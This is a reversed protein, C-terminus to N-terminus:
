EAGGWEGSLLMVAILAYNSIDNLDDIVDVLHVGNDALYAESDFDPDGQKLLAARAVKKLRSMKDHQMRLIVGGVGQETINDPGRSRFKEEFIALADMQRERFDALIQEQATM